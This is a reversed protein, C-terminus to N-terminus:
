LTTWTIILCRTHCKMEKPKNFNVTQGDPSVWTGKHINKHQYITSAILMQNEIAFNLMLKGDDNTSEHM